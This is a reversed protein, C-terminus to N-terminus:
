PPGKAGDRPGLHLSAVSQEALAIEESEKVLVLEDDSVKNFVINFLQLFLLASILVSAIVGPWYMISMPIGTVPAQTYNNIEIQAWSGTLFLWNAGLMLAISVIACLKKGTAPLMRVFTDVGLHGHEKIAVVAGLFILWVFLMRSAEESITIGSNFGYRLVVNGFVMILMTGLLLALLVEIGKALLEILRQM